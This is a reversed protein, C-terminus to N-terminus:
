VVESVSVVCTAQVTGDESTATIVANGRDNGTVVGNSSVSAILSNDSSWVVTQYTANEPDITATLTATEGKTLRLTSSSLTISNVPVLVTVACTAVKKGDETTATIM